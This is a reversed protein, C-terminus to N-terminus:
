GYPGVYTRTNCPRKYQLNILSVKGDMSMDRAYDQMDKAGRGSTADVYM